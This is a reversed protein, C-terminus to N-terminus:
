SSPSLDSDVSHDEWPLPRLRGDPAYIKPAAVPFMVLLRVDDSGSPRMGHVVRPPVVITSMARVSSAEGDLTFTVEGSLLVLIEQEDHYHLPIYGGPDFWQEWVSVTEEGSGEGVVIRTKGRPVTHVVSKDHAFIM